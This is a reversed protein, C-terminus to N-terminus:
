ILVSALEGLIRQRPERLVPCHIHGHKLELFTPNTSWRPDKLDAVPDRCLICPKPDPWIRIVIHYFTVQYLNGARESFNYIFRRNGNVWHSPANPIKDFILILTYCSACILIDHGDDICWTKKILVTWTRVCCLDDGKTCIRNDRWDRCWFCKHQKQIKKEFGNALNVEEIEEQVVKEQHANWNHRDIDEDKSQTQYDCWKCKIHESKVHKTLGEKYKYTKRCIECFFDAKEGTGAIHESNFHRTLHQKNKFSKLCAECSFRAEVDVHHSKSHATLHQKYKFSKSCYECPFRIEEELHDSNSHRTLNKKYKFTKSCLECAFKGSTNEMNQHKIHQESNKIAKKPKKRTITNGFDSKASDNGITEMVFDDDSSNM